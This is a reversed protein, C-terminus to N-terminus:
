GVLKYHCKFLHMEGKHPGYPCPCLWAKLEEDPYIRTYSKNFVLQKYTPLFLPIHHSPDYYCYFYQYTDLVDDVMARSQALTDTLSDGMISRASAFPTGMLDHLEQAHAPMPLFLSILFALALTERTIWRDVSDDGSKKHTFLRRRM